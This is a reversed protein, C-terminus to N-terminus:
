ENYRKSYYYEVMDGICGINILGKDHKQKIYALIPEFVADYLTYIANPRNYSHTYFIIYSGNAAALDIVERARTIIKNTIETTVQEPTQEIYLRMLHAPDTQLTNVGLLYEEDNIIDYNKPGTQGWGIYKKLMTMYPVNNGGLSIWGGAPVIGVDNMEQYYTQVLEEYLAETSANYIRSDSHIVIERGKDYFYKVLERKSANSLDGPLVAYTTNGYGAAVLKADYAKSEEYFFNVGCDMCWAVFGKRPQTAPTQLISYPKSYNNKIAAIDIANKEIDETNQKVDQKLGAQIVTEVDITTNADVRSDRCIRIYNIGAPITINYEENTADEYSGPVSAASNVDITSSDNSTYASVGFAGRSAATTFKLRQGVTVPIFDTMRNPAGSDIITEGSVLVVGGITIPYEEISSTGFIENKLAAIEVLAEDYSLRVIKYDIEVTTSPIVRTDRCIRVYRIGSPITIQYDVEINQDDVVEGTRTAESDLVISSMDNNTYASICLVSDSGASRFEIQEGEVVPIFDTTKYFQSELTSGDSLIAMGNNLPVSLTEEVTGGDLQETINNIQETNRQVQALISDNNQKYITISGDPNIFGNKSSVRIYNVGNPIVFDYNLNEDISVNRGQISFGSVYSEQSQSSYGTVAYGSTGMCAVVRMTDGANVSIYDTIKYSESPTVTPFTNVLIIGGSLEGSEIIQPDKGVFASLINIENAVGGSKVLKNSGPTPKDDIGVNKTSLKVYADGKWAYESYCTDDYQSGDWNGVRYVTDAAGTVPLLDTVATTQATAVVTVYEQNPTTIMNNLETKNYTETKPYVDSANAKGAIDAPVLADAVKQKEENTYDNTSLGKGAEKDVKGALQQETAYDGAPQYNGKPQYKTDSEQKTYADITLKKVLDSLEIGQQYWYEEIKNDNIIGVTLGIACLGDASLAAHAASLSAYPGYRFDISPMGEKNTVIGGNNISLNGM